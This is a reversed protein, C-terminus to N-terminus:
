CRIRVNISYVYKQFDISVEFFVILLVDLCFLVLFDCLLQFVFIFELIGWWSGYGVECLGIWFVIMFLVLCLILQFSQINYM